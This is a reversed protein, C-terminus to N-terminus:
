GRLGITTATVAPLSAEWIDEFRDNFLHAGNLDNLAMLGRMEDYHFRHVYHNEDVVTFPDYVHKAHPQTEHIAIGHSFQKLLHMMRPCRAILFGTEHMVIYLRNCHSALLFGRLLEYREISNFASSAQKDFIRVRHRARGIVRDIAAEYDAVSEIKQHQPSTETTNEM